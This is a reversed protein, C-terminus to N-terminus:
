SPPPTHQAVTPSHGATPTKHKAEPKAVANSPGNLERLTPVFGYSLQLNIPAQLGVSHALEAAYHNCNNTLANWYPTGRARIRKIAALLNQYEGATLKHRYSSSVPLKAVDPDWETNAPIPIIHGLAMLAYNGMPHLDTYHFDAPQGQANLRGYVVYSHGYAGIQAARFEIYYSGSAAAEKPQAPPISGTAVEATRVQATAPPACVIAASLACVALAFILPPFNRMM